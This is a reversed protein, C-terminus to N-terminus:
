GVFSHPDECQTSEAATANTASSTASTASKLQEEAAALKTQAIIREQNVNSLQGEIQTIKDKLLRIEVVSEKYKDKIEEHDSSKYSELEKEATALTDRAYQLERNLKEITERSQETNKSATNAFVEMRMNIAELLSNTHTKEASDGSVTEKLTNYATTVTDIRHGLSVNENSLVDARSKTNALEHKVDSLEVERANIREQLSGNQRRVTKIEEDRQELLSVSNMQKRNLHAIDVNVKTLQNKAETATSRASELEQKLKNIEFTTEKRYSEFTVDMEERQLLQTEVMKDFRAKVDGDGLQSIINHYNNRESTVTELQKQM